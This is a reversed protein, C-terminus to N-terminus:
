HMGNSKYLNLSVVKLIYNIKLLKAKHVIVNNVSLFANLYITSDFIKWNPLLLVQYIKETKRFTLKQKFGTVHVYYLVVISYWVHFLLLESKLHSNPKSCCKDMANFKIVFRIQCSSYLFFISLAPCSGSITLIM